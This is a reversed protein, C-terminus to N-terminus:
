VWLYGLQREEVEQWNIKLSIEIPNLKIGCAFVIDDVEAVEGRDM